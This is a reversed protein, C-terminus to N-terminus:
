STGSGWSARGRSSDGLQRVADTAVAFADLPELLAVLFPALEEYGEPSAELRLHEARRGAEDLSTTCTRWLDDLRDTRWGPLSARAEALGGEFGALAEALPRRLGRRGPAAAVLSAKAREVAELTRDFALAVGSVERGPQASRRRRHRFM